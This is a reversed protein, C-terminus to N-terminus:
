YVGHRTTVTIPRNYGFSSRLVFLPSTFALLAFEARPREFCESQHGGPHPRALPHCRRPGVARAILGSGDDHRM